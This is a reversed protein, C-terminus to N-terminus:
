KEELQQIGVEYSSRDDGLIEYDIKATDDRVHLADDEYEGFRDLTGVGFVADANEIINEQDDTIVGDAYLTYTLTDYGSDGFDEPPIVYPGSKEKENVNDGGFITDYGLEDIKEKLSTVADLHESESNKNEISVSKEELHEKDSNNGKNRYYERVDEIEENAIQEYKTKVLKYTVVSGVAAGIAFIIAKNLISKNM